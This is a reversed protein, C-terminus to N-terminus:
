RINAATEQDSRAGPGADRDHATDHAAARAYVAVAHFSERRARDRVGAALLPSQSPSAAGARDTPVPRLGDYDGASAVRRRRGDCAGGASVPADRHGMM